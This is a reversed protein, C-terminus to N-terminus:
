RPLVGLLQQAADFADNAINFRFPWGGVATAQAVVSEIALVSVNGDSDAKAIRFRSEGYSRGKRAAAPHNRGSEGLSALRATQQAWIVGADARGAAFTGVAPVFPSLDGTSKGSRETPVNM